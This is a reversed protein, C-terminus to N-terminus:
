CTFEKLSKNSGKQFSKSDEIIKSISINKNLQEYLESLGDSQSEFLKKTLDTSTIVTKKFSQNNIAVQKMKM